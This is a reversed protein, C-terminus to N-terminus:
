SIMRGICYIQLHSYIKLSLRLSLLPLLSGHGGPVSSLPFTLFISVSPSVLAPHRVGEAPRPGAKRARNGSDGLEVPSDVQVFVYNLHQEGVQGGVGRPPCQHDVWMARERPVSEAESGKGVGCEPSGCWM